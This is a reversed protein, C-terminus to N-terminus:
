LVLACWAPGASELVAFSEHSFPLEFVKQVMSPMIKLIGPMAPDTVGLACRRSNFLSISCMQLMPFLWPAQTDRRM